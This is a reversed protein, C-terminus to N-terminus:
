VLKQISKSYLRNCAIGTGTLIWFVPSVSVNSDNAISAVLFGIVALMCGLGSYYYLNDTKPRFYLIISKIVYWAMFVLFSILSIVGTNLGFQLYMNHPKDVIIYPTGFANLKGIFDNQPFYAAYTDPGHGIFITDKLMPLSRSWIYGRMSGWKEAGKFGFSNPTLNKTPKGKANIFLFEGNDPSVCINFTTTPTNINLVSNDIIIALGNYRMDDPILKNPNSSDKKMDVANDKDDVFSLQNSLKDFKIKLLYKGMYLELKNKDINMNTLQKLDDLDTLPESKTPTQVESKRPLINSFELISGSTYNMLITIGILCVFLALLRPLSKFLKKRLFGVLFIIAIFTGIYGTTSRCGLLNVFTLCSFILAFVQYVPKKVYILLLLSIPFLMASYSGVYNPNYLTLYIYSIPFNFKLTPAINHYETPLMLLKGAQTQLFDFGFFQSVGLLGLITGCVVLSIFLIKIDKDYSIINAAIFCVAVYCSLAFFGEYRDTYGWLAISSYKSCSTSILVFLFYIGLPIFIKSLQIKRFFFYLASLVISISTLILIWISKYYSFFDPSTEGTVSLDLSIGKLSVPKLFVILPVVLLILALPIVKYYHEKNNTLSKTNMTLWRENKRLKLMTSKLLLCYLILAKIKYICM